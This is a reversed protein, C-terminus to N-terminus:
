LSIGFASIIGEWAGVNRGFTFMSVVGQGPRAGVKELAAMIIEHNILWGRFTDVILSPDGPYDLLEHTGDNTILAAAGTKGPDIGIFAKSKM